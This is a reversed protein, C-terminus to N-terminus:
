LVDGEKGITPLLVTYTYRINKSANVHPQGIQLPFLCTKAHVTLFRKLEIDWCLVFVEIINATSRPIISKRHVM